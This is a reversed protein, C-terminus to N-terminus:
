RLPIQLTLRAKGGDDDHQECSITDDNQGDELSRTVSIHLGKGQQTGACRLGTDM